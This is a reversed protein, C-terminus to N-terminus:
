CFARWGPPSWCPPLRQSARLLVNAMFAYLLLRFFCVSYYQMISMSWVQYFAPDTQAKFLYDRWVNREEREVAYEFIDYESFAYIKGKSLDKAMGRIKKASKFDDVFM